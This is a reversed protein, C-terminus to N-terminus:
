GDAAGAIRAAVPAWRAPGTLTLRRTEPADAPTEFLLHLAEAPAETGLRDPWEVLCLASEFAEELGLEMLEDAHTLRYLDCHWIELGGARYTQVLTFTPSPVEEPTGHAAQRARILTRAFHTKGAGIPGDLLLTDGAGLLPAMAAALRATADPGPLTLTALPATTVAPASM